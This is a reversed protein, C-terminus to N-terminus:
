HLSFKAQNTLSNIYIYCLLLTKYSNAWYIYPIFSKRKIADIRNKVYYKVGEWSRGKLHLPHRFASWVSPKELCEELTSTTWSPEKWQRSKMKPGNWRKLTPGQILHSLLKVNNLFWCTILSHHCCTKVTATSLISFSSTSCGTTATVFTNLAVTDTVASISSAVSICFTIAFTHVFVLNISVLMLKLIVHCLQLIPMTRKTSLVNEDILQLNIFGGSHPVSNLVLYSRSVQVFLDNVSIIWFKIYQIIRLM